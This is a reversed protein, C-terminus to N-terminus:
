SNNMPLTFSGLTLRCTLAIFKFRYIKHYLRSGCKIYHVDCIAAVYTDNFIFFVTKDSYALLNFLRCLCCYVCLLLLKCICVKYFCHYYQMQISAHTNGLLPCYSAESYSYSIPKPAM